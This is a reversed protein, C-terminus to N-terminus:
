RREKFFKTMLQKCQAELVGGVTVVQHNLRSDATINMLTGCAGAKPDDCGYVVKKIRSQVIAGACMPCPELTVFLTLGEMRWKGRAKGAARLAEIEAHATPDSQSERQNHARAIINGEGDVVVAGVPVEGSDWAINAETLAEKMFTEYPM